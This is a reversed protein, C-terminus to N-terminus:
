RFAFSPIKDKNEPLFREVDFKEPEPFFEPNHHSAYIPMDVRMGKKIVLGPKVETDKACTRLHMTAPGHLRLNENIASELLKMEVITEHDVKGGHEEVADSVEQYLREQLTHTTLLLKTGFTGLMLCVQVEPHKALIYSLTSLTNATTEFGAAFFIVSQAKIMDESIEADASKKM